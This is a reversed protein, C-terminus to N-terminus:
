DWKVPEGGGRTGLGWYLTFDLNANLGRVSGDGLVFQVMGPHQSKFGNFRHAPNVSHMTSDSMGNTPMQAQTAMLNLPINTSCITMNRSFAAVHGTQTPLTEGVMLTNSLGDTVDRLRVCASWRHFMGPASAKDGWSNGQCCPNTEAATQNPCFPCQDCRVPGMSGAYWTATSKAANGLSCCSCRADLVPQRMNSDSPCVYARVPTTIAVANAANDLQVNFNFLEYHSQAEIFPLISASWSPSFGTIAGGYANGWPLTQYTSEYNHLGLGIQKLNNACKIRRAAERAAQVAPLLLAVLVGIIAIVVLLEVLTFGTSRQGTFRLVLRRHRQM